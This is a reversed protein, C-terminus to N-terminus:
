GCMKLISKSAKLTEAEVLVLCDAADLSLDSITKGAWTWCSVTVRVWNFAGSGGGAEDGGAEAGEGCSRSWLDLYLAWLVVSTLSLTAIRITKTTKISVNTSRYPAHFFSSAQESYLCVARLQGLLLCGTVMMFEPVSQRAPTYVQHLASNAPGNGM